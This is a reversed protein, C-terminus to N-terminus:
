DRAPFAVHPKGGRLHIYRLKELLDYDVKNKNKEIFELAFNACAQIQEPDDTALLYTVFSGFEIPELKSKNKSFVELRLCPRDGIQGDDEVINPDYKGHYGDGQFSLVVQYKKNEAVAKSYEKEM